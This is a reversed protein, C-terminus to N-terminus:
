DGITLNGGQAIAEALMQEVTKGNQKAIL